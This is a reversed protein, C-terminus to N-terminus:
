HKPKLSSLQSASVQICSNWDRQCWRAGWGWGGHGHPRGWGGGFRGPWEAEQGEQASQAEQEAPEAVPSAIAVAAFFLALTTKFHM